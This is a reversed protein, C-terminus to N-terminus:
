GCKLRARAQRVPFIGKERVHGSTVGALRLCYFVAPQRPANRALPRQAGGPFADASTTRFGALGGPAAARQHPMGGAAPAGALRRWSRPGTGGRDRATGHTPAAARERARAHIAGSAHQLGAADRKGAAATLKKGASAL